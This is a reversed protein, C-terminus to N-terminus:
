CVHRNGKTINKKAPLIQLNWPVHLGSVNKGQLPVIHDVHWKQGTFDEAAKAAKYFLKIEEFFVDKIWKPKRKLRKTHTIAARANMVGRNNSQWSEITKRCKEFQEYSRWIEVFFKTKKAKEKKYGWFRFGDDRFDGQEFPKGTDPNLRKM